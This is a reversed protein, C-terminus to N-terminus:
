LDKYGHEDLLIDGTKMLNDLGKERTCVTVAALLCMLVVFLILGVLPHLHTLDNNDHHSVDEPKEVHITHTPKINSEKRFLQNKVHPYTIVPQQWEEPHCDHKYDDCHRKMHKPIDEAPKKCVSYSRSSCPTWNERIEFM